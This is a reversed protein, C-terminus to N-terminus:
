NGEGARISLAEVSRDHEDLGALAAVLTIVQILCGHGGLPPEVSVHVLEDILVLVSKWLCQSGKSTGQLSYSDRTYERTFALFTCVVSVKELVENKPFFPSLISCTGRPVSHVSCDQSYHLSDSPHVAM